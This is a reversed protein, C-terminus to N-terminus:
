RRREMGRIWAFLLALVPDYRAFTPADDGPIEGGRLRRRLALLRESDADGLGAPQPVDCRRCAAVFDPYYTTCGPCRWIM